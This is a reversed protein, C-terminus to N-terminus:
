TRSPPVRHHALAARHATIEAELDPVPTCHRLEVFLQTALMWRLRPDGYRLSWGEGIERFRNGAPQFLSGYVGHPIIKKVRVAMYPKALHPCRALAAPACTLCVPPQSTTEGDPWGPWEEDRRNVLFLTGRSTRSAPGGHVQCLRNLMAMRGRAPHMDRYIPQGTGPADAMRSWLVGHSDRDEPREDRHCLGRGDPRVRLVTESEEGTWAAVYPVLPPKRVAGDDAHSPQHPCITSGAQDNLPMPPQGQTMPRHGAHPLQNVTGNM